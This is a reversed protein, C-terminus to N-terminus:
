GTTGQEGFPEAMLSACVAIEFASPEFTHIAL